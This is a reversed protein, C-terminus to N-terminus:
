RRIEGAKDAPTIDPDSLMAAADQQDEKVSLSLNRFRRALNAIITMEPYVVLAMVAGGQRQLQEVEDSLMQISQNIKDLSENVQAENSAKM